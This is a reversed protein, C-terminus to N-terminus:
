NLGIVVTATFEQYSAFEPIVRKILFKGDTTTIICDGKCNASTNPDRSDTVKVLETFAGALALNSNSVPVTFVLLATLTGSGSSPATDVPCADALVRRPYGNWDAFGVIRRYSYIFIRLKSHNSERNTFMRDYDCSRM